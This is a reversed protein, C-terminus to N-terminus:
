FVTLVFYIFAWLFGMICIITILLELIHKTIRYRGYFEASVCAFELSVLAAIYGIDQRFLAIICVVVLMIRFGFYGYSRGVAKEHLFGEDLSQARSKKLIEDRDM